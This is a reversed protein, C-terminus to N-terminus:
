ETRQEKGSFCNMATFFDLMNVLSRWGGPNGHFRTPVQHSFGANHIGNISNSCFVSHQKRGPCTDVLCVRRIGACPAPTSILQPFFAQKPIAHRRWQRKTKIDYFLGGILFWYSHSMQDMSIFSWQQTVTIHACTSHRKRSDPVAPVYQSRMLYKSKEWVFICVDFFESLPYYFKLPFFFNMSFNSIM